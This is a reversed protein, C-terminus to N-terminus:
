PLTSVFLEPKCRRTHGPRTATTKPTSENLPGGSQLQVQSMPSNCMKAFSTAILTSSSVQQLLALALLTLSTENALVVAHCLTKGKVNLVFAERGSGPLLSKIDNSCFNHLWKHRDAGTIAIICVPEIREITNAM